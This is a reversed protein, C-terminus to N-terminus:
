TVTTHSRETAQEVPDQAPTLFMENITENEAVAQSGGSAEKDVERRHHSNV